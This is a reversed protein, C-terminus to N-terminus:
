LKGKVWDSFVMEATKKGIRKGILWGLSIQLVSGVLAILVCLERESMKATGREEAILDPQFAIKLEALSHITERTRVDISPGAPCDKTGEIDSAAQRIAISLLGDILTKVPM